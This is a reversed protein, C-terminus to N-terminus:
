PLITFAARRLSATPNGARDTASAVLLHHGPKMWRGGIRGQFKVFNTGSTAARDVTGRVRVYLRCALQHRSARPLGRACGAGVRHGTVLRMVTLRVTAPESMRFSVRSGHKSGRKFTAPRLTLRSLVPRVMDACADGRGDGNSDAQDPNPIVPCNDQGDIAGDLDTDAIKRDTGLRGEVTDTLGDNDDDADHNDGVGDGDTDISESKDLPFADRENPIRDNDADEDCVDGKADKDVNQQGSNPVSPCNDDASSIGDRDPDPLVPAYILNDLLAGGTTIRVQTVRVNTLIGVFSISGPNAVASGLTEGNAGLLDIKSSNAAANSFVAGFARTVGPTTTGPVVFDVTVDGNPQVRNPPSYSNQATGSTDLAFPAGDSTLKLARYTYPNPFTSPHDSEEWTVEGVTGVDAKFQPVSRYTAAVAPAAAGALAIAILPLLLLRPWPVANISRAPERHPLRWTRTSV